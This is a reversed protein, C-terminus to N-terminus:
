SYDLAHSTAAVLSKFYVLRSVHVIQRVVADRDLLKDNIFVPAFSSLPRDWHVALATKQM